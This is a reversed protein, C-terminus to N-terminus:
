PGAEKLSAAVKLSTINQILDVEPVWDHFLINSHKQTLEAQLLKISFDTTVNYKQSAELGAKLYSAQKSALYTISPELEKLLTDKDVNPLLPPDKLLKVFYGYAEHLKYFSAVGWVPEQLAFVEQYTVELAELSKFLFEISTQFSEINNNKLTLSIYNAFYPETKLFIFESIHRLADGEMSTNKALECASNMAKTKLAPDSNKSHFLKYYAHIKQEHTLKFKNLYTNLIFQNM